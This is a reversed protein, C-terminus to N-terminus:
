PHTTPNSTKRPKLPKANKIKLIKRACAKCNDPSSDNGQQLEEPLVLLMFGGCLSQNRASTFYHWKRSNMLWTWGERMYPQANDPRANQVM